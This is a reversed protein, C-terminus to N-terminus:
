WASVIAGSSVLDLDEVGLNHGRRGAKLRWAGRVLAELEVLNRFRGVGVRHRSEQPFRRRALLLTGIQERGRSVVKTEPGQGRISM